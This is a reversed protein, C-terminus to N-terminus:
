FYRVNIKKRHSSKSKTKKKNNYIRSLSDGTLKYKLKGETYVETVNNSKMALKLYQKRNRYKNYNSARIAEHDVKVEPVYITYPKNAVYYALHEMVKLDPNWKGMNKKFIGFNMVIDSERYKIGNYTLIPTTLNNMHIIGDRVDIEYEYKVRKNGPNIVSGGVVDADTHEIVQVLKEINTNENFVFDDDLLLKYKNPTNDFLYNRACSLGCDHPLKIAKEKGIKYQSPNFQESQDAIYVQNGIDPYFQYISQLLKKICQPREMTTILFDVNELM